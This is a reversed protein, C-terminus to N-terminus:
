ALLRNGLLAKICDNKWLRHQLHVHQLECSIAKCVYTSIAKCTDTSVAWQM